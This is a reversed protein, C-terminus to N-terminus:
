VGLIIRGPSRLEPSFSNDFVTGLFACKVDISYKKFIVKLYILRRMKENVISFLYNNILIFAVYGFEKRLNFIIMM